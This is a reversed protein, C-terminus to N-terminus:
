TQRSYITPPSDTPLFIASEQGVELKTIDGRWISIRDNLQKRFAYKHKVNVPNTLDHHYLQSLTPIDAPSVSTTMTHALRRTLRPLTM